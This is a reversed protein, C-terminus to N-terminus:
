CDTANAFEPLTKMKLYAQSIFNYGELDPVFIVQGNGIDLGDKQDFANWRAVIALKDGVLSTVKIYANSFETTTGSLDAITIKSQLAM